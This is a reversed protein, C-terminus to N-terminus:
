KGKGKGKGKLAEIMETIHTMDQHQKQLQKSNEELTHQIELCLELNRVSGEAARDVRPMLVWCIVVVVLMNFVAALTTTLITLRYQLPESGNM